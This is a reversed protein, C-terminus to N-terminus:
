ILGETIGFSHEVDTVRQGRGHRSSWLELNGPRNDHRIGNKHHVTEYKELKRGLTKEMVRRHEFQKFGLEDTLMVYGSKFIFKRDGPEGPNFRDSRSFSPRALNRCTHSCYIRGQREGHSRDIFEKGCHKCTYNIKGRQPRGM